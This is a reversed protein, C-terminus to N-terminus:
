HTAPKGLDESFVSPVEQNKEFSEDTKLQTPQDTLAHFLVEEMNSVLIIELKDKVEPSVEVLDKENDKPVCVTKIAGRAAALLKEKLGGIPLVHGRLTIEGTM